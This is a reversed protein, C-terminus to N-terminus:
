SFVFVTASRPLGQKKVIHYGFELKSSFNQERLLEIRRDLKELQRRYSRIDRDSELASVIDKMVHSSFSVKNGKGELVSVFESHRKKFLEESVKEIKESLEANLSKVRIARDDLAAIQKEIRRYADCNIIIEDVIRNVDKIFDRAFGEKNETHMKTLIKSLHSELLDHFTTDLVINVIEGVIGLSSLSQAIVKKPGQSNLIAITKDITGDPFPKTASAAFVTSKLFSDLVAIDSEMARLMSQIEIFEKSRFDQTTSYPKINEFLITNKNTVVGGPMRIHEIIRKAATQKVKDERDKTAYGIQVVVNKMEEVRIMVRKKNALIADTYTGGFFTLMSLMAITHLSFRISNLIKDPIGLKSQMSAVGM